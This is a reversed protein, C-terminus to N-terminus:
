IEVRECGPIQDFDGDFTCIGELNYAIVVAVHVADRASLNPHSDVLREAQDMVAGTVPLFEPFLINAAM